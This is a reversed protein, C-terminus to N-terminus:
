PSSPRTSQKPLAIWIMKEADIVSQLGGGGNLLEVLIHLYFVMLSDLKLEDSPRKKHQKPAINPKIM